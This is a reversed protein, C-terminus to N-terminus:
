IQLRQIELKEKRECRPDGCERWSSDGERKFRERSELHVFSLVTLSELPSENSFAPLTTDVGLLQGTWMHAQASALSFDILSMILAAWM